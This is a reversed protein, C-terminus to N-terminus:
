TSVPTLKSLRVLNYSATTMEMWFRNRAVGCYRLKRGGGVTKVWGFVEEVRKRARQSLRYGEHRTTRRDIASRQKQAVHPTVRSKRCGRVFGRTDYGRDAGVTIRRAGPVAELMELAADRESAGEVPTLRVDVVLGERNDLLVHAGFCLKAEKGKGKKALRAEPDTTSRHTDNSRREGRFDVEPNRGGDSPPEDEDRPRFSKVSAWAELLTGDVSFHEESLLRQERAQGVIELLFERAVDADLLRQRNKAFVSHDFSHDMINLDLFWKFLLDYELRECFQRESRVSFLAMLLCAKLLHEPPISARGNAAYIRDFTPSLQALARDVMPKIRRIPHRQPVLADPTVATLM